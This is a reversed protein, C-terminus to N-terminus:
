WQNTNNNCQILSMRMDAYGYTNTLGIWDPTFNAPYQTTNLM